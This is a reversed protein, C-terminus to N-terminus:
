LGAREWTLRSVAVRGGMPMPPTELILRGGEFRCFRVQETGIWNPFTCHELRHIVCGDKVEFTGAYAFCSEFAAAREELSGARADPSTFPARSARSLVVSMRGDASYLLLGTADVGFPFTATGEGRAELSGLPGTPKAAQQGFKLDDPHTQLGVKLDGIAEFSVLRWAGIFPARSQASTADQEAQRALGEAMRGRQARATDPTWAYFGKGAKAGPEGRAAKGELLPSVTSGSELDPTINRVVALITDLGALDCIEFPGAIGLRRGIGFKVVADVDEPTAVGREVLSIAERLLAVQLRNAIFGPAEGRVVVVRKGQALLLERVADVTAEATAPGAVVEVCPLLYAPNFYHVGLVKGPRSTVAAYASPVFSSSNSALITRAPCLADLEAFIRRKIELSETASEIVLDADQVLDALNVSTRIRELAASRAAATLRGMQGLRGLAAAIQARARELADASVDHLGVELGAVAFELAIGHGMLGAGTVVIRRILPKDVPKDMNMVGAHEAKRQAM